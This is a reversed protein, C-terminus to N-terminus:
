PEATWTGTYGMVTWGGAKTCVIYVSEGDADAVLYKGAAGPVGTSPLSITETGNPDIRLQQAAGVRFYYEQGVTAAPMAFTITGSAGVSTFVKGSDTAAVVTYDATKAEVVKTAGAFGRNADLVVAKSATAAGATLGDTRGLETESLTTSGIVLSYTSPITINGRSVIGRNQYGFGFLATLAIVGLLLKFNKKM